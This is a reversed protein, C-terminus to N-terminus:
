TEVGVTQRQAPVTEGQGTKMLGFVVTRGSRLRVLVGEQALRRVAREISHWDYRHDAYSGYYYVRLDRYTFAPRGTNRMYSKILALTYHMVEGDWWGV